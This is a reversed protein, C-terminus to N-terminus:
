GATKQSWLSSGYFLYCIFCEHIRRGGVWLWLTFLEDQLLGANKKRHKHTHYPHNKWWMLVYLSWPNFNLYWFDIISWQYAVYISYPLWIMEITTMVVTKKKNYKIWSKQNTEMWLYSCHLEYNISFCKSISCSYNLIWSHSFEKAWNIIPPAREELAQKMLNDNIIGPSHLMMSM